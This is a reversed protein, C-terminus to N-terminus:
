DSPGLEDASVIRSVPALQERREDPLQDVVLAVGAWTSGCNEILERAALAQSGLEAWDDVLLVRDASALSQVQLRLVHRQGRYDPGAIVHRKVGPLLGAEKRIPVFGIGAAQAVAAGLIFGRSEIGAVKTAAAARVREALDSVIVQFVDADHFLRWVDGHGDVWRFVRM